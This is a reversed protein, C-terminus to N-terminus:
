RRETRMVSMSPAKGQERGASMSAELPALGVGHRRSVEKSSVIENGGEGERHVTYVHTYASWRSGGSGKKIQRKWKM